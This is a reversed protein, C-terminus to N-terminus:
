LKHYRGIWFDVNLHEGTRHTLLPHPEPGSQLHHRMRILQRRREMEPGYFPLRKMEELRNLATTDTLYSSYHRLKEYQEFASALCWATLDGQPCMHDFRRSVALFPENPSPPEGSELRKILSDLTDVAIGRKGIERSVRALTQLRGVTPAHEIIDLLTNFSYALYAFRLSPPHGVTHASAYASLANQYEKSYPTHNPPRSVMWDDGLSQAYPLNGSFEDWVQKAIGPCPRAVDRALVGQKELMKARDTRCAFLNLDFRDISTQSAHSDYPVLLTLGPVLRYLQYGISVFKELLSFDQRSGHKLEFLVLPSRESLFQNAGELIRFEEGEADMKILDVDMWGHERMCDDLTIVRVSQYDADPDEETVICGVESNPAVRLNATGPQASLAVQRVRLNDLHNHRASNALFTVPGNAPEFSWVQGSSEVAKAMALSYVGYSAGIDVACMGPKLLHKVFLIEDEFWGEQELLVYPTLLQLCNPV